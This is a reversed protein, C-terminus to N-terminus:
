RTFKTFPGIKSRVWYYECVCVCLSLVVPPLLLLRFFVLVCLCECTNLYFLMALRRIIWQITFRHKQLTHHFRILFSPRCCGNPIHHPLARSYWCYLIYAPSVYTKSKNAYKHIHYIFKLNHARKQTQIIHTHQTFFTHIHSSITINENKMKTFRCLSSVFFGCTLPTCPLDFIWARAM